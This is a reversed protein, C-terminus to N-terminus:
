SGHRKPVASTLIMSARLYFQDFICKAAAGMLVSVIFSILFNNIGEVQFLNRVIVVAIPHTLYIFMVNIGIFSLVQFLSLPVTTSRVWIMALAGGFLL